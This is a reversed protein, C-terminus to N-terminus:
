AALLEGRVPRNGLKWHPIFLAVDILLIISAQILSRVANMKELQIASDIDEEYGNPVYTFQPMTIQAVDYLAIGLTIVMCLLTLFSIALAYKQILPHIDKKSM